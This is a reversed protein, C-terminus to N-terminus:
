QRLYRRVMEVVDKEGKQYREYYPNGPNTQIDKAAAPGGTTMPQGDSTVFNDDSLKQSLAFLAKVVAPDRFGPSHPDAGVLKAATAARVINKDFSDGWEKQLEAKGTELEQHLQQGIMEGRKSEIEAQAAALERMAAPPINHKHAIAAIPKVLEDNWEVGDPLTEPKFAYEEVKEPVGLAKRYAAVEEPKADKGPLAVINAKQGILRQAELYSKGLDAVNRFRSLSTRSDGLEEPLHQTWDPAFTGDDGAFGKWAGSIPPAPDAPPAAAPPTALLSAPEASPAAPTNEEPM